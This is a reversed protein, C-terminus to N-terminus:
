KMVHKWNEVMFRMKKWAYQDIGGGKAVEIIGWFSNASRAALRADALNRAGAFVM